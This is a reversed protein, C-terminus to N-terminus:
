GLGAERMMEPLPKVKCNSDVKKLLKILEEYFDKASSAAHDSTYNQFVKQMDLRILANEVSDVQLKVQEEDFKCDSIPLCSFDENRCLQFYLKKDDRNRLIDTDLGLSFKEGEFGVDAFQLEQAFAPIVALLMVGFISKAM